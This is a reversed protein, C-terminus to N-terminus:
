HILHRAEPFSSLWFFILIFGACAAVFWLTKYAPCKFLLCASFFCFGTIVWGGVCIVGHIFIRSDFDSLLTLLLVYLGCVVVLLGSMSCLVVPIVSRVAYRVKKTFVSEVPPVSGIIVFQFELFM